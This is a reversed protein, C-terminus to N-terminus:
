ATERIRIAGRRDRSAIIGHGSAEGVDPEILAKIGKVAGDFKAAADKNTLWDNAHSAWENRGLMSVSRLKEPMPVATAPAACPLAGSKVCDWFKREADILAAQYFPDATIPERRWDGSGLFVSLYAKGAGTVAMEHQVQPTYREIITEFPERGSCHKCQVVANEAAVFGDLTCAMFDHDSSVVHEGDRTVVLGTKREFWYLNLPETFSGMQVALVDSLDDDPAEGRKRRWLDYIAEDLGSMIVKADSGGVYHQRRAKQEASLGLHLNRTM